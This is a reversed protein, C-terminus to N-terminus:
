FKSSIKAAVERQQTSHGELYNAHNSIFHRYINYEKLVAISKQCILCVASSGVKKFLYKSTWKSKFARRESDIKRTKVSM